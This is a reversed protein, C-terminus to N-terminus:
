AAIVDVQDDVFDLFYRPVNLQMLVQRSLQKNHQLLEAVRIWAMRTLSPVQLWLQHLDNVRPGKTTLGGHIFLCGYSTVASSHFQM